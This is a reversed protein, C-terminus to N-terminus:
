YYNISNVLLILEAFQVLFTRFVYFCALGLTTITCLHSNMKSSILDFMLYIKLLCPFVSLPFNAKENETQPYWNDTHGAEEGEAREFTVM